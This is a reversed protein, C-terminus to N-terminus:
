ISLLPNSGSKNNHWEKQKEKEIGIEYKNM